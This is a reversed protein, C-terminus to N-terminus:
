FTAKLLVGVVLTEVLFSNKSLLIMIAVSLLAHGNGLRIDRSIEVGPRCGDYIITAGASYYLRATHVYM